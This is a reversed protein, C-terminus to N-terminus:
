AFVTVMQRASIVPTGDANWVTMDQSSYGDKATEVATRLLWWGDTTVPTEELVNIMWTASSLPAVGHLNATIAPPPVDAIALLATMGAAEPDEHRIWFFHEGVDSGLFPLAGKSLRMDFHVTFAPVMDNKPFQFSADPAPVDPFPLHSASLASERASGFALGCSTVINEDAHIDSRLFTMSRGQRLIEAKVAVDGGVPGVFSVMASRLPPLDSFQSIAGQYAIAASLGGFTARGQMWDSTVTAQGKSQSLGEMLQSFSVM